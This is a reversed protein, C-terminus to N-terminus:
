RAPGGAPPPVHDYYGGHEDYCWILLTKDWRPATCRRRQDVKASFAEGLTIDEANEESQQDFDPEVLSFAPLTGAAADTFFQNITSSRTATPPWCRCTCGSRRCTTYYDRWPITHRNLPGHDHREAAAPGNTM